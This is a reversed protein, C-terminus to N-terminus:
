SKESAEEFNLAASNICYRLGSPEPGDDFVHGLHAECQRCTIETRNMGHSHDAKEEVAETCAPQWFSPWGSGSDYKCTSDFLLAGCCICQYVGSGKFDHYKGTFAPETGKTRTIAYQEPTLQAQWEADTKKM